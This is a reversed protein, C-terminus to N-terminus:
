RRVCPNPTSPTIAHRVCPVLRHFALDTGAGRGNCTWFADGTADHNQFVMVFTRRGAANIIECALDNAPDSDYPYMHNETGIAPSVQMQHSVRTVRGAADVTSGDYICAHSPLERYCRDREARFAVSGQDIPIAITGSDTTVAADVAADTSADTGADIVGTDADVTGADRVDATAADVIATDTRADVGADVGTAGVSGGTPPLPAAVGSDPAYRRMIVEIPEETRGSDPESRLWSCGNIVSMATLGMALMRMEQRLSRRVGGETLSTPLLKEVLAKM